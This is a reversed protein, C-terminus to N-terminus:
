FDMCRERDLFDYVKRVDLFVQFLLERALGALHQALKTNLTVM